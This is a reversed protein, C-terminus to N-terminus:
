RKLAPRVATIAPVTSVVIARQPSLASKVATANSVYPSVAASAVTTAAGTAEIAPHVAGAPRVVTVTSVQAGLAPKVVLTMAVAAAPATIAVAAIVFLAFIGTKRM